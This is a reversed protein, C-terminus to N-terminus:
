AGKSKQAYINYAAATAAAFAIAIANANAFPPTPTAAVMTALMNM